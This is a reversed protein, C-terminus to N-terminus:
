EGLLDSVKNFFYQDFWRSVWNFGAIYQSTNEVRFNLILEVKQGFNM